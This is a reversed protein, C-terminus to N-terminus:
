AVRGLKIELGKEKEEEPDEPPDCPPHVHQKMVLVGNNKTVYVMGEYCEGPSIYRCCRDCWHNKQALHEYTRLLKM